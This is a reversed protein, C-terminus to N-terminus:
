RPILILPRREGTGDRSLVIFSNMLIARLLTTEFQGAVQIPPDIRNM